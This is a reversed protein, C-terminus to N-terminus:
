KSHQRIANERAKETVRRRYDPDKWQAKARASAAARRAPDLNIARLLESHRSRKEPTFAARIRDGRKQVIEPPMEFGGEGGTTLNYGGPALTGLERIFRVEAEFCESRSGEFLVKVTWEHARMAAGVAFDAKSHEKLRKDLRSTVGVYAKDNQFQILYM